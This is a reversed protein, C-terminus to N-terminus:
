QLVVPLYVRSVPGVYFTVLISQPSNDATSDTITLTDTARFRDEILTMGSKDFVLELEDDVKQAALWPQTPGSVQWDLTGGGQNQIEIRRVAQDPDTPEVWVNVSQPVVLHPAAGVLKYIGEDYVAAYVNNSNTPDIVIRGVKGDTTLIDGLQIWNDGGDLSQYVRGGVGLYIRQANSPDIAISRFVASTTPLGNNISEWTAGGDASRYVGSYWSGLYLKQSDSPDIALCVGKGDIASNSKAWTDGGNASKLLIGQDYYQISALVYVDNADSDAINLWRMYVKESTGLFTQSNLM